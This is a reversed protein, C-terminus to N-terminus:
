IGGSLSTSGQRKLKGKPIPPKIDKLKSAKPKALPKADVNPSSLSTSGQRKLTSKPVPLKAEKQKTSAKTKEDNNPLSQKRFPSVYSSSAFSRQLESTNQLPNPGLPPQRSQSAQDGNSAEPKSKGSIRKVLAKSKNLARKPGEFETALVGLGGAQIPHGLPHLPTFLIMTGSAVIASGTVAVATKRVRDGISLRNGDADEHEGMELPPIEGQAEPTEGREARLKAQKQREILERQSLQRGSGTGQLWRPNELNRQPQYFMSGKAASSPKAASAGGNQQSSLQKTTTQLSNSVDFSPSTDLDINLLDEEDDM